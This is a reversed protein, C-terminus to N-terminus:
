PTPSTAVLIASSRSGLAYLLGNVVSAHQDALDADTYTPQATDIAVRWRGTGVVEPLAFSAPDADANFMLYLNVGHDDHIWCALRKEMPELWDPTRGGADFWQIDGDTYFAERRLVAHRRRFALLQRTFRVLERHREALSWDVWSTHNDQCVRQQERAPDEPIRRRGTVDPRRPLDRPDAPFEQDADPAASEEIAPDAPGEVGHNASFNEDVGDRDAEGNAVNHKHTYSM